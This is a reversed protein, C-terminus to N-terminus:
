HSLFNANSLFNAFLRNQFLDAKKHVTKINKALLIPQFVILKATKRINEVDWSRFNDGNGASLGPVTKLRDQVCISM